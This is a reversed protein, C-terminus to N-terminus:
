CFKSLGLVRKSGGFANTAHSGRSSRDASLASVAMGLPGGQCVHDCASQSPLMHALIPLRGRIHITDTDHASPSPGANGVRHLLARCYELKMWVSKNTFLNGVHICVPENQVFCIRNLWVYILMRQFWVHICGKEKVLFNLKNIRIAM